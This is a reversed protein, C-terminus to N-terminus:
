LVKHLYLKEFNRLGTKDAKQKQQIVSAAVSFGLRKYLKLAGKNSKWVRIVASTFQKDKAYAFCEQLLVAGLGRGRYGKEVMLEAIYITKEPVINSKLSLPFLSDFELPCAFLVGALMKNQSEAIIAFGNQVFLKLYKEVDPKPLFQFSPEVSFTDIYLRVLQSWYKEFQSSQILKTNVM